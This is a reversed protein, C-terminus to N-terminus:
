VGGEAFHRVGGELEAMGWPVGLEAGYGGRQVEFVEQAPRPPGEKQARDEELLAWAAAGEEVAGMIDQHLPEAAAHSHHYVEDM